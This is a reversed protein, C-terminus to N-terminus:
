RPKAASPATLVAKAVHHCYPCRFIPLDDAPHPARITHLEMLEGCMKCEPAQPM